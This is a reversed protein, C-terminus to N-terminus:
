GRQQPRSKEIAMKDTLFSIRGVCSRLPPLIARCDPTSGLCEGSFWPSFRFLLMASEASLRVLDRIYNYHQEVVKRVWNM